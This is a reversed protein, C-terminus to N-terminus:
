EWVLAKGTERKTASRFTCVEMPLCRAENEIVATQNCHYQSSLSFCQLLSGSQSLIIVGSWKLALPSKLCCCWVGLGEWGALKICHCGAQSHGGLAKQPCRLITANTNRWSVVHWIGIQYMRSSLLKYKSNAVFKNLYLYKCSCFVAM